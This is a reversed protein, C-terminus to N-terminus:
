DDDIDSFESSANKIRKVNKITKEIKTKMKSIEILDDFNNLLLYLKEKNADIYEQMIKDKIELDKILSINKPNNKIIKKWVELTLIKKPVYEINKTPNLILLEVYFDDPIIDINCYKILEVDHLLSMKIMEITQNEKKIHAIIDRFKYNNKILDIIEHYKMNNFFEGLFNTYDYTKKIIINQNKNIILSTAYPSANAINIDLNDKKELEIIYKTYYSYSRKEIIEKMTYIYEDNTLVGTNNWSLLYFTNYSEGLESVKM